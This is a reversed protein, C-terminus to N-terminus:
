RLRSGREDHDRDVRSRAAYQATLAVATLYCIVVVLKIALFIVFWQSDEAVNATSKSRGEVGIGGIFMGLLELASVVAVLGAAALAIAGLVQAQNSSFNRSRFFPFERASL